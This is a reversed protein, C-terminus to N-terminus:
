ALRAVVTELSQEAGELFAPTQELQALHREYRRREAGLMQYGVDKCATQIVGWLRAAEDLDGRARRVSALGSLCMIQLVSGGPGQATSLCERYRAEAQDLNGRDLELDGISHINASLMAQLGLERAIADCELLAAEADDYQALDRLVEGLQHLSNAEAHRDGHLRSHALGRRHLAAATDLRGDAWAVSALWLEIRAVEGEDGHKDALEHAENWYRSAQALDVLAFFAIAGAAKLAALRVQVSAEPIRRSAIELWSRAEAFRAQDLWYAACAAGTRLALDPDNEWSWALAAQINERELELQAFYAMENWRNARHRGDPPALAEALECYWRAHRGRRLSEQGSGALREAAFERITELMWFRGEPEAQRRRVLSKDILSQLSDPGADCVSEAADYTSGGAFVSLAEFLSRETPTLLEYSWAITARLTRQRLDVDPTARLLDLRQSLRELLQRASFLPVRAAALELALPLNDLRKCLDAVAPDPALEPELARARTLFLEIGDSDTLTPVPYVQEAQLRLRERSTVLATADTAAVLWGIAAAAGPLLHEVNDVVLLRRKGALEASLKEELSSTQSATVECATAVAQLVLTPNRLPALPVWRIGDPYAASAEAAAQLALRTKGTGGPGTLTLLRAGGTTLREVVAELESTRGLFQTAPVPLRVDHLSRLPAFTREELQYIREPAELDRLRHEGLDRLRTDVLAATAASVLTQGGHGVAAIRAARHVDTGVYGEETTLPTGTHLGIRVGVPGTALRDQIVRAAEVAGPATPFAVFFSDGATDIEVGGSQAIAERIIRRHEELAAAFADAGLEGLLRTSGEVDSFLFTVTGSPRVPQM